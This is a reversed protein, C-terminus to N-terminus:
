NDQDMAWRTFEDFIRDLSKARETLSYEVRIPIENFVDRNILGCKELDRLRSTITKPSGKLIQEIENFRMRGHVLLLHIIPMAYKKGFLNLYFQVKCDDICDKVDTEHMCHNSLGDFGFKIDKDSVESCIKKSKEELM